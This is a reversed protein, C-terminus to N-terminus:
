RFLVGWFSGFYEIFINRFSTKPWFVTWILYRPDYTTPNTTPAVRTSLEETDFSSVSAGPSSGNKPLPAAERQQGSEHVNRLNLRNNNVDDYVSMDEKSFFNDNSQQEVGVWTAGGNEDTRLSVAAKTTLDNNFDDGAEAFASPAANVSNEMVHGNTEDLKASFSAGKQYLVDEEEAARTEM